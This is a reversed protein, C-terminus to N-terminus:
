PNQYHEFIEASTLATGYIATQDLLGPLDAHGGGLTIQAPINLEGTLQPFEVGTGSQNVGDIYIFGKAPTVSRDIVYAIHHWTGLSITGPATM